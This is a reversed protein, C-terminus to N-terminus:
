RERGKQPFARLLTESAYKQQAKHQEPTFKSTDGFINGLLDPDPPPPPPVPKTKGALQRKLAQVEDQLETIKTAAADLTAETDAAEPAVTETGTPYFVGVINTYKKVRVPEDLSSLTVKGFENTTMEKM